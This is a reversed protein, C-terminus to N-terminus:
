LEELVAVLMAKIVKLMLAFEWHPKKAETLKAEWQELFSGVVVDIEEVFDHYWNQEFIDEKTPKGTDSKNM